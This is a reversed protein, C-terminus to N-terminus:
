SSGEAIRKNLRGATARIMIERERSTLTSFRQELVSLTKESGRCTRALALGAEIPMLFQLIPPARFLRSARRRHKACARVASQKREAILNHIIEIGSFPSRSGNNASKRRNAPEIRGAFGKGPKAMCKTLQQDWCSSSLRGVYRSLADTWEPVSSQCDREISVSEIKSM